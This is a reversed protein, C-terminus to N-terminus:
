PRYNQIKSLGIENLEDIASQVKVFSKDSAPTDQNLHKEYIAVNQAYLTGTKPFDM